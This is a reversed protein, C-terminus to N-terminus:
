EEINFGRSKFTKSWLMAEDAIFKTFEESSMPAADCGLSVLRQRMASDSITAITERHLRAAIGQPLGAPASLGFWGTVAVDGLGSEALTPVDPILPHRKATTQGIMRLQGSAARKPMDVPGGVGMQIQGSLLALIVPIGGKYPVHVIDVGTKERVMEVSLHLVSGVGSSGYYVQGPRAKAYAVFETMNNVPLSPVVAFVLPNRVLMTIHTFDKLPDYPVKPKLAPIITFGAPSSVVLTYGDGPAKAAVEVGILGGAGARNEVVFSQGMRTQLAQAVIRGAVDGTGGPPLSVIIRVTREPYGQARALSVSLMPALAMLAASVLVALRRNM